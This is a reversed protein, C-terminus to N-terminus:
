DIADNKMEGEACFFDDPVGLGIPALPCKFDNGRHKCEVCRVVSVLKRDGIDVRNVTDLNLALPFFVDFVKGKDYFKVNRNKSKDVPIADVTPANRLADFCPALAIRHTFHPTRKVIEQKLADADILRGMM